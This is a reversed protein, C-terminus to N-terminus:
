IIQKVTFLLFSDFHLTVDHEEPFAFQDVFKAALSEDGEQMKDAVFLGLITLHVM